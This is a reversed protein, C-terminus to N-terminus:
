PHQKRIHDPGDVMSIAVARNLEVIPTEFRDFLLQYLAVIQHWDTSEATRAEGHVAAIAAQLTYPGPYPLRLVERVMWQGEEIKDCDWLTRDQRELQILIGSADVRARGRSDHLLMLALLERIETIDPLLAVIVRTIRIAERCLDPRLLRQGSSATYGENFILYLTALVADVRKPLEATNPIRYPIQSHRIKRKARVIRQAMTKESVLFAHAVEATTLGGTTKLTLGVRAEM